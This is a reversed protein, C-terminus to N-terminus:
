YTPLSSCYFVADLVNKDKVPEYRVTMPLRRNEDAWDKWHIMLARGYDKHEVLRVACRARHFRLGLVVSVPDALANLPWIISTGRM